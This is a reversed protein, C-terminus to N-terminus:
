CWSFYTPRKSMREGKRPKIVPSNSLSSPTSACLNIDIRSHLYSDEGKHLPNLTFSGNGSQKNSMKLIDNSEFDKSLINDNFKSTSHDESDRRTM